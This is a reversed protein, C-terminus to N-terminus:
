TEKIWTPMEKIAQSSADAERIPGAPEGAEAPLLAQRLRTAIWEFEAKPRYDAGPEYTRGLLIVKEGNHLELVLHLFYSVSKTGGESDPERVVVVEARITLIEGRYWAKKRHDRATRILMNGVVSLQRLEDDQHTQRWSEWAQNAASILIGIGIFFMIYALALFSPWDAMRCVAYWIVAGVLLLIGVEFARWGAGYAGPRDDEPLPFDLTIGTGPHTEAVQANLPPEPRDGTASMHPEEVAVRLPVRGPTLLARQEALLNALRQMSEFDQNRFFPRSLGAPSEAHLKCDKDIRIITLQRVSELDVTAARTRFLTTICEVRLSRATVLIEYHRVIRWMYAIFLLAAVTFGIAFWIGYLSRGEEAFKLGADVASAIIFGSIPLAWLLVFTWVDHREHRQNPLSLRVSDGEPTVVIDAPGIPGVLFDRIRRWFAM